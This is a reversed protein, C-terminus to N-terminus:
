TGDNSWHWPESPLNYLGYSSAHRDLWQFCPSSRSRILAGNCTFDIALGVEHMSHGPRATPPSCQSAPMEYVAYRSSGCHARRLEIQRRPSRYGSGVLLFGDARAAQILAAVQQAIERHVTIGEVTVLPVNGPTGEYASPDAPDLPACDDAHAPAVSDVEKGGVGLMSEYLKSIENWYNPDTAWTGALQDWTTARAGAPPAVDPRALAVNNGVAYKKLLQIHARVGTRVDPFPEGSTRNDYNRIGAFNNRSTDSNTFWGTEHIAQALALDGRVGEAEAEALYLAVVDDIPLGLRAPQGRGTSVWWSTLDTHNLTSPGEITPASGPPGTSQNPTCFTHPPDLTGSGMALLPLGIVVGSICM